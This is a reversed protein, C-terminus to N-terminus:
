AALALEPAEDPALELAVGCAECESWMADDDLRVASDCLPCDTHIM